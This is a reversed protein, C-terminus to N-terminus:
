NSDWSHIERHHRICLPVVDKPKEYNHHHWQVMEVAGCVECCGKEMTGREVRRLMGSVKRYAAVKDPNDERWKQISFVRGPNKYDMLKGFEICEDCFVRRRASVIVGGCRVCSWEKEARKYRMNYEATARKGRASNRYKRQRCKGSCMTASGFTQFEVGCVECTMM